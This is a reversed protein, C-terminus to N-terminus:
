VVVAAVSPGRFSIFVFLLAILARGAATQCDALSSGAGGGGGGGGGETGAAPGAPYNKM